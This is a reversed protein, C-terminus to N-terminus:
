LGYSTTHSHHSRLMSAFAEAQIQADIEKPDLVPTQHQPPPQSLGGLGARLAAVLLFKNNEDIVDQLQSLISTTADGYV